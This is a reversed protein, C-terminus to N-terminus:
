LISFFSTHALDYYSEFLILLFSLISLLILIRLNKIIDLNFYQSGVILVFGLVIIIILSLMSLFSFYQQGTFLFYSLILDLIGITLFVSKKDITSIDPYSM